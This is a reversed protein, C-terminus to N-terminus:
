EDFTATVFVPAGLDEAAEVRAFQDARCRRAQLNGGGNDQRGGISAGEGAFQLAGSLLRFFLSGPPLASREMHSCSAPTATNTGRSSGAIPAVSTFRSDRTSNM